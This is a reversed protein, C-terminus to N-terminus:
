LNLGGVARAMGQVIGARRQPQYNGYIPSGSSSGRNPVVNGNHLAQSLWSARVPFNVGLILGIATVGTLIWKMTARKRPFDQIEQPLYSALGGVKRRDDAMTAVRGRLVGMMPEM